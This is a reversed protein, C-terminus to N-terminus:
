ELLSHYKLYDITFGKKVSIFLVDGLEHFSVTNTKTGAETFFNPGYTVRCGKGNCRATHVQVAMPGTMGYVTADVVHNSPNMNDHGCVCCEKLPTTYVPKTPESTSTAKQVLNTAPKKTVGGIEDHKIHDGHPNQTILKLKYVRSGSVAVLDVLQSLGIRRQNCSNAMIVTGEKITLAVFHGPVLGLSCLMPCQEPGTYYIYKGEPLSITNAHPQTIEVLGVGIRKTWANGESVRFPGDQTYPAPLDHARLSDVLCVNRFGHSPGCGGAEEEEGVVPFGSCDDEDDDACEDMRVEVADDDVGLEVQSDELELNLPGLALLPGLSEPRLVSSAVAHGSPYACSSASPQLHESARTKKPSPSSLDITNNGSRRLM